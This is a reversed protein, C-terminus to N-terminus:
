SGLEARVRAIQRDVFELAARKSEADAPGAVIESRRQLLAALMKENVARDQAKTDAAAMNGPQASPPAAGAAAAGCALAAAVFIGIKAM